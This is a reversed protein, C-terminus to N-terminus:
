LQQSTPFIKKPEKEPVKQGAEVITLALDNFIEDQHETFFRITEETEKMRGSINEATTM